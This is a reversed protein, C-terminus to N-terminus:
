DDAADSTYLLCVIRRVEAQTHDPEWDLPAAAPRELMALNWTLFTLQKPPSMTLVIRSQGPGRDLRPPTLGVPVAPRIM